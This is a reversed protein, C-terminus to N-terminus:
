YSSLLPIDNRNLIRFSYNFYLSYFARLFTTLLYCIAIAFLPLTFRFPGLLFFISNWAISLLSSFSFLSFYTPLFSLWEM